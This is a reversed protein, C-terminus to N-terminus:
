GQVYKLRQKIQANENGWGTQEEVTKKVRALSLLTIIQLEEASYLTRPINHAYRDCVLSLLAGFM